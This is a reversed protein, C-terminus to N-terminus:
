LVLEMIKTIQDYKFGKQALHNMIRSKLKSKESYELQEFNTEDIKYKRICYDAIEQLNITQFLDLNENILDKSIGKEYLKLKIKNEGWGASIRSRIYSELFRQDSIIGKSEQEDVIEQIEALSAEAFKTQLKKLIQKKSCERRGLQYYITALISKRLTENNNKV